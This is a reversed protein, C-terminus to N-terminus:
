AVASDGKSQRTVIRWRVVAAVLIAAAELALLVLFADILLFGVEAVVGIGVLYAVLRSTPPPRTRRWRELVIAALPLPALFIQWLPLYVAFGGCGGDYKADGRCLVALDFWITLSVLAVHAALFWAVQRITM